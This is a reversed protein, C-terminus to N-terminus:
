CVLSLPVNPGTIPSLPYVSNFLDTTAQLGAPAEVIVHDSNQQTYYQAGEAQGVLDYVATDINTPLGRVARRRRLRPDTTQAAPLHATKRSFRRSCRRKDETL